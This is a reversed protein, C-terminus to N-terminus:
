CQKDSIFVHYGSNFDFCVQIDSGTSYEAKALHRRLQRSSLGVVNM